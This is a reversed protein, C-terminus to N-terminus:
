LRLGDNEARDASVRRFVCNQQHMLLALDSSNPIDALCIAPKPIAKDVHCQQPPLEHWAANTHSHEGAGTVRTVCTARRHKKSSM